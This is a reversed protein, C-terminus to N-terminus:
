ARAAAHPDCEDELREPEGAAELALADQESARENRAPRLDM